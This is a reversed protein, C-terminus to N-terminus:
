APTSAPVSAPRAAARARETGRGALALLLAKQVHLRNEAQDFAVSRPGDIVEATIEEGRHAPLCHMAVAHPAARRMLGADVRFGAFAARRVDAEDEDGMSIWTDTYVADVGIAAEAPDNGLTLRGGGHAAATRIAAQAPGDPGYGAPHALRVEIGQGVAAQALSLFVNNSEGVFALRLGKLRGFRDRLTLLDALAQCPHERDSLANVVPVTSAAALEEVTSHSFTRAVIATVWRSLTRSVDAPTERTGLGVDAQGLHISEGGLERAAIEFSVRTRLSPKEFLLAVTRGALPRPARADFRRQRLLAATELLGAIEAPSLDGVGLLHRGIM